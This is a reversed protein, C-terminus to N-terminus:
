LMYEDSLKVLIESKRADTFKGSAIVGDMKNIMTSINSKLELAGIRFAPYNSLTDNM